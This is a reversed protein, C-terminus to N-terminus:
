ASRLCEYVLYWLLAPITGLIWIGPEDHRKTRVVDIVFMTSGVALTLLVVWSFVSM